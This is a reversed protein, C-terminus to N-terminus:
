SKEKNRKQIYSRTIEFTIGVVLLVVVKKVLVQILIDPDIFHLFHTEVRSLTIGVIVAIVLPIIDSKKMDIKKQDAFIYYRCM